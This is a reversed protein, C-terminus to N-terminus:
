NIKKNQIEKIKGSKNSYITKSFSAPKLKKVRSDFDDKGNLEWLQTPFVAEGYQLLLAGAPFLKIHVQCSFSDHKSERLLWQRKTIHALFHNM